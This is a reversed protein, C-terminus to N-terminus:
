LALFPSKNSHFLSYYHLYYYYIIYIISTWLPQKQTLYSLKNSPKTTTKIQKTSTPFVFDKELCICRTHDKQKIGCSCLALNGIGKEKTKKKRKLFDWKERWDETQEKKNNTIWKCPFNINVDLHELTFSSNKADNNQCNIVTGANAKQDTTYHSINRRETQYFALSANRTNLKIM